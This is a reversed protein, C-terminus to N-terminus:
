IPPCIGDIDFIHVVGKILYSAYFADNEQLFKMQKCNTLMKPTIHIHNRFIPLASFFHLREAGVETKEFRM